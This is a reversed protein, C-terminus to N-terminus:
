VNLQKLVFYLFIKVNLFNIRALQAKGVQNELVSFKKICLMNLWPIYIHLCIRPFVNLKQFIISKM